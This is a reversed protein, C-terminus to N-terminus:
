DQLRRWVLRFVWEKGRDQMPPTSLTLLSEELLVKRRQESGVWNPFLSASVRHTVVAEAEDVSYTGYYAVYGTFAGLVEEVTGDGQDGSAFLPRGPQMIQVAMKGARDYTLLGVPDAGFPQETHGGSAAEFSVLSWSGVLAAALPQSQTPRGEGKV